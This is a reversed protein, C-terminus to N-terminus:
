EVRSKDIQWTPLVWTNEKRHIHETEGVKLYFVVRTLNIFIM